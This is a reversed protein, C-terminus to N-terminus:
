GEGGIDAYLDPYDRRTECALCLTAGANIADDTLPEGCEWCPAPGYECLECVDKEGPKLDDGCEICAAPPRNARRADALDDPGPWTM